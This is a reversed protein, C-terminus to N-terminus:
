KAEGGTIKVHESVETALRRFSRYPAVFLNPYREHLDDEHDMLEDYRDLSSGFWRTDFEGQRDWCTVELQRDDLSVKTVTLELTPCTQLVPQSLLLEMKMLEVVADNLDAEWLRLKECFEALGFSTRLHFLPMLGQVEAPGQLITEHYLEQTLRELEPWDERQELTYVQVLQMRDMDSYLFPHDVTFELGCATCEAQHFEGALIQAKAWPHRTANLSLAVGAAVTEGCGPCPADVVSFDSM